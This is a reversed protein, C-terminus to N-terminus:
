HTGLGDGDAVEENMPWDTQEPDSWPDPIVEGAYQELDERPPVPQPEWEDTEPEVLPPVVIEPKTPDEAPDVIGPQAPNPPGGM